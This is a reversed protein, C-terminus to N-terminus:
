RGSTTIGGTGVWIVNPNNPDITVCGISYSGQGDFIPEYTTGSNVTKWVGGSSTAVYYIHHQTPHVAIDSVRGSTIAPGVCRFKLASISLEDLPHKTEEKKDDKKNKKKRQATLDATWCISTILLLILIRM